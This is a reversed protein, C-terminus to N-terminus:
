YFFGVFSKNNLILFMMVSYQHCILINQTRCFSRRMKCVSIILYKMFINLMLYLKTVVWPSVDPFFHQSWFFLLLKLFYFIIDQWYKLVQIFYVSKVQRKNKSYWDCVTPSLFFLHFFSFRAVLFLCESHYWSHGREISDSIMWLSRFFFSFFDIM